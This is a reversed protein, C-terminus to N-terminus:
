QYGLLLELLDRKVRRYAEVSKEYDAYGRFVRKVLKAAQEVDKKALAQLLCLDEYGIRHAESRVSSLPTEHGPYFIAPDGAPLFNAYKPHYEMVQETFMAAQRKQPDHGLTHNAGWHLFGEISSYLAPAWGLWVMRLREMDLLRNCYNGGPTLCTYVFIRDGALVRQEFFARNKEYTEVTPCWIDLDGVVAETPLVPEMISVGPLAERTIRSILHYTEKLADNPEDLCCQIWGAKLNHRDLYANLQALASRLQEQGKGSSVREGTIAFVAEKGNDFLDFAQQKFAAGIQEPSTFSAHDLSAYFADDDALNQERGCFAGGQFLFIGAKRSVEIVAGLRAENLAPKGGADVDFFDGMSISLMNQRSYVALRLYRELLAMFAPSWKEARHSRAIADLSFWNIYKHTAQDAKPIVAPYQVVDLRLVQEQGDHSVTITWQKAEKARCYEIPTRFAFAATTMAPLVTNFVPELIEYVFFPARRIVNENRDDKLYESRQDAGTNVEVPVPLLSFLKYARHPGEVKFNLPIGPTLGNVCIHVGIYAGNAGSLEYRASGAEPRSDPYLPELEDFLRAQFIPM